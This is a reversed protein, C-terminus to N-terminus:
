PQFIRKVITIAGQLQKETPRGGRVTRLLAPMKKYLESDPISKPIERRSIAALDQFDQLEEGSLELVKAYRAIVEDKPPLRLGMEIRSLNAPDESGRRCFERLTLKKAIRKEKLVESFRKGDM